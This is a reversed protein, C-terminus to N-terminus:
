PSNTTKQAKAIREECKKATTKKLQVIQTKAEGALAGNKNQKGLFLRAKLLKIRGRKLQPSGKGIRM